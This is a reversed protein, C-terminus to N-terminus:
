KATPVLQKLRAEDAEEVGAARFGVLRKGDVGEQEYAVVGPDVGKPTPGYLVVLPQGDRDSTFLEDISSVGLPDLNIPAKALAAKFEQENAPNRSLDFAAKVYLASLGKVHSKQSGAPASGGCGALVLLASGCLGIALRTVSPKM